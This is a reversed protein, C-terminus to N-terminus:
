RPSDAKTDVRGPRCRMYAEWLPIQIDIQTIKHHCFYVAFVGETQTPQLAVPYGKFAKSTKFIKGRFHIYGKDQVKRVECNQPYEIATVYGPHLLVSDPSINM